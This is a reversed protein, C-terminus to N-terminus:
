MKACETTHVKGKIKNKQNQSLNYKFIKHLIDPCLKANLSTSAFKSISLTLREAEIDIDFSDIDIDFSDIDIFPPLFFAM